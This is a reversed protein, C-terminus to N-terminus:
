PTPVPPSAQGGATGGGVAFILQDVVWNAISAAMVIVIIGVLANKIMTQAKKVREDSGGATMWLFGGYILYVLLLVGILGLAVNIIRGIIIAPDTPEGGPSLEATSAATTLGSKINDGFAAQTQGAFAFLMVLSLALITTKYILGQHKALATIKSHLSSYAM